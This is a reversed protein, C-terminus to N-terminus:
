IKTHKGTDQYYRKIIMSWICPSFVGEEIMWGQTEFMEMVENLVDWCISDVTNQMTPFPSKFIQHIQFYFRALNLLAACMQPFMGGPGSRSSTM